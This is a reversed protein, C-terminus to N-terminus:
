RQIAYISLKGESLFGNGALLSCRLQSSSGAAEHVCTGRGPTTCRRLSRPSLLHNFLVDDKVLAEEPLKIRQNGPVRVGVSPQNAHECLAVIDRVATELSSHVQVSTNVLEIMTNIWSSKRISHMNNARELM